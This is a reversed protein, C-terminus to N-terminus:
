VSVFIRKPLGNTSRVTSGDGDSTAPRSTTSMRRRPLRM